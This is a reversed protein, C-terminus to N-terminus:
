GPPLTIAWATINAGLHNHKRGPPLTQAGAIINAGLHYYKRGPQFQIRRFYFHSPLMPGGHNDWYQVHVYNTDGSIQNGFKRNVILGFNIIKFVVVKVYFTQGRTSPFIMLGNLSIHGAQTITLSILFM